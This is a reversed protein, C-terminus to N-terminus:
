DEADGDGADDGGEDAGADGGEEALEEALAEAEAAEEEAIAEITSRTLTGSAVAEEPDVETRVGNPLPLDGVRVSDGITLDSIDAVLENPIANPKAYVMLTFLTQDVMGDENTVEKAEGELHIPVEVEIEIGADIRLFDVHLVDRRVPDRQVDRVMSLLRDGEVELQILANLGADTTLVRRLEPWEVAISVPDAGMGYVVGPVRGERRLRRSSRSGLSRGTEASLVLEDM